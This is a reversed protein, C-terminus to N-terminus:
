TRTLDEFTKYRILTDHTHFWRIVYERLYEESDKISANLTLSCGVPAGHLQGTLIVGLDGNAENVVSLQWTPLKSAECAAWIERISEETINM